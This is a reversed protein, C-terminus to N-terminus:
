AGRGPPSPPPPPAPPQSEQPDDRRLVGDACSARLWSAHNPGSDTMDHLADGKIQLIDPESRFFGKARPISRFSHPLLISVAAPEFRQARSGLFPVTAIQEASPAFRAM